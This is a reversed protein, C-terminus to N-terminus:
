PNSGEYGNKPRLRFARGFQSLNFAFAFSSAGLLTEAPTKLM